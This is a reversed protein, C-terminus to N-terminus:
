NCCELYFGNIVAIADDGSKISIEKVGRYHPNNEYETKKSDSTLIISRHPPQSTLHIAYKVIKEIEDAVEELEKVEPDHFAARLICRPMSPNEELIRNFTRKPMINSIRKYGISHTNIYMLKRLLDPQKKILETYLYYDAVLRAEFVVSPM